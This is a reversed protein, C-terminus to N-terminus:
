YLICVVCSCVYLAIASNRLSCEKIVFKTIKTCSENREVILLLLACTDKIHERFQPVRITILERCSLERVVRRDLKFKLVNIFIVRIGRQYHVLM